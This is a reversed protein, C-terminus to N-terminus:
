VSAPGSTARLTARPMTVSTRCPHHVPAERADGLLEKEGSLPKGETMGRVM